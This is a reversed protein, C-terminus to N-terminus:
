SRVGAAWGCVSILENSVNEERSDICHAILDVDINLLGGILSRLGGM